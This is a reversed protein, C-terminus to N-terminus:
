ILPPKGGLSTDKEVRANHSVSQWLEVARALNKQRQAKYAAVMLKDTTSLGHTNEAEQIIAKAEEPNDAFKEANLALLRDIAARMGEQEASMDEQKQMVKQTSKSNQIYFFVALAVGLIGIMLGLIGMILSVIDISRLFSKNAESNQSEKKNTDISLTPSNNNESSGNEAYVVAGTGSLLALTTLSLILTKM